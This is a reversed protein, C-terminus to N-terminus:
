NCKLLTLPLRVVNCLRAVILIGNSATKNEGLGIYVAFCFNFFSLESESLFM